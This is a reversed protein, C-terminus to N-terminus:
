GTIKTTLLHRLSWGSLLIVFLALVSIGEVLYPIVKVLVGIVHFLGFLISFMSSFMGGRLALFLLFVASFLFVPLLYTRYGAETNKRTVERERGEKLGISTMVKGELDGSIEVSAYTQFLQGRLSYLDDRINQCYACQQLHRDVELYESATLENDIYASLQEEVHTSM